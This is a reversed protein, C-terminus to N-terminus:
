RDGRDEDATTEEPESGDEADSNEMSHDIERILGRVGWLVVLAM